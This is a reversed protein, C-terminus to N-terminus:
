FVEGVPRTVGQNDAKEPYYIDALLPTNGEQKFNVTEQTELRGVPGNFSGERISSLTNSSSAVIVRLIQSEESDGETWDVWQFGARNLNQKWLGEDALVHKRDDNFLWWGELLGFVLDFWFLNRTLEVLCVMGDPHLMKKINIASATLDRTAHICNTSIVIDYQGLHQSPPVQEVDLTTYRMFNHKAFTKKAAAVLSSSLDTFNYQFKRGCAALLGILYSTTGGTGAGLELVQIERDVDFERFINVLYRALLITGTKFMPANTYVDTM